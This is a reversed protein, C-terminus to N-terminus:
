QDAYGELGKHKEVANTAGKKRWKNHNNFNAWSRKKAEHAPIIYTFYEQRCECRKTIKVDHIKDASMDASKVRQDRGWNEYSVV